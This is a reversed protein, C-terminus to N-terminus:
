EDGDTWNSLLADLEAESTLYEQKIYGQTTNRQSIAQGKQLLEKIVDKIQIPENVIYAGKQMVTLIEKHKSVADGDMFCCCAFGNRGALDFFLGQEIVLDTLRGVVLTDTSEKNALRGVASYVDGCYEFEAGYDALLPMAERVFKDASHGVIMVRLRLNVDAGAV